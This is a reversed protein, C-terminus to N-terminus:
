RAGSEVELGFYMIRPDSPSFAIADIDDYSNHTTTVTRTAADYRYVDTGYGQFFTGFVFYLVNADTPHAAMVPQNRITIEASQDVVPQYTNGGDTSRYIHRDGAGLSLAMAWVVRDDSPAFVFNFANFGGTGFVSKTWTRGGDRSVYGGSQTTGAVIHDLNSHAFAFRYFIAPSTEPRLTGIATWTDGADLSEWVVGDDSGARVHDPNNRDVGLGVFAAPEKLKVAGRSDYRVLFRRNDSWAYARGGKAATITPPIDVDAFTAVVRWSCGADTSILLDSRHWALLTDKEDLAALGFTYGIGSLREATPALTRGHDRSFTIAASGTVMSCVPFVEASKAARRRTAAFVLSSSVGILLTFVILRRLM